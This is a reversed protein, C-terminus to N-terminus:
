LPLAMRTAGDDGLQVVLRGAEERLRVGTAVSVLWGGDDARAPEFASGGRVLVEPRKTDRDIIWVERVGVEFYFPLKERTEDGPSRVEIVVDPGGECHTTRDIAAFREPTAIARDPVRFDHRWDDLGSRAVNVEPLVVLGGRFRLHLGLWTGLDGSLQQHPNTPSPAMHLVGEWVEDWRDEGTRRREELLREPVELMVARM